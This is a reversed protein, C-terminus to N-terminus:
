NQCTVLFLLNPVEVRPSDQRLWILKSSRRCNRRYNIRLRCTYMVFDSFSITGAVLADFIATIAAADTAFTGVLGLEAALDIAVGEFISTSYM